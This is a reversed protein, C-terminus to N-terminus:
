KRRPCCILVVYPRVLILFLQVVHRRSWCFFRGGVLVYHSRMDSDVIRGDKEFFAKRIPRQSHDVWYITWRTGDVVIRKKLHQGTRHRSETTWNAGVLEALLPQLNEPINREFLPLISDNRGKKGSFRAAGKGGKSVGGGTSGGLMNYDRQEFSFSGKGQEFTTTNRFLGVGKEGGSFSNKGFGGLGDGFPPAGPATAGLGFPAGFPTAGLPGGFPAGLLPGGLSSPAGFLGGLPSPGKGFSNKEFNGPM